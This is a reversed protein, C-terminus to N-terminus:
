KVIENIVEDMFTTIDYVKDYIIIWADNRHDHESVESLTIVRLEEEIRDEREKTTLESIICKQPLSQAIQTTTSKSLNNMPCVSSLDSIRDSTPREVNEKSPM